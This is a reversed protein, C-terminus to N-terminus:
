KFKLNWQYSKAYLVMSMPDRMMYYNYKEKKLYPSM